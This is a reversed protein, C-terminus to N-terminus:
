ACALEVPFCNKCWIGDGAEDGQHQFHYTHNDHGVFGTVFGTTRIMGFQLFSYARHVM